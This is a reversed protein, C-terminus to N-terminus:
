AWTAKKFTLSVYKVKLVSLLGCIMVIFTIRLSFSMNEKINSIIPPLMENGVSIYM